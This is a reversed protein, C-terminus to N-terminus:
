NGRLLPEGPQPKPVGLAERAWGAPVDLGLQHIAANLVQTLRLPDARILGDM